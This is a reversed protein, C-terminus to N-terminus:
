PVRLSMVANVLARWEDRDQVMGIRDVGGWGIDLLTMKNNDDVWRRRPRGLQRKGESKGVLLRYANRYEGM